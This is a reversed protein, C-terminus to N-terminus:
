QIDRVCRVKTDAVGLMRSHIDGVVVSNSVGDYSFWYKLSNPPLPPSPPNNYWSPKNRSHGGTLRHDDKDFDPSVGWIRNYGLIGSIIHDTILPETSSEQFNLLHGYDVYGWRYWGWCFSYKSGCGRAKHWRIGVAVTRKDLSGYDYWYDGLPDSFFPEASDQPQVTEFEPKTPLRWDIFGSLSLNACDNKTDTLNSYARPTGACDPDYMHQGLNCKTWMLSSADDVLMGAYPDQCIRNVLNLHVQDTSDVTINYVYCNLVVQDNGSASQIVEVRYLGEPKPPTVGPVTPIPPDFEASPLSMTDRTVTNPGTLTNSLLWDLQFKGDALLQVQLIEPTADGKINIPFLGVTTAFENIVQAAYNKKPLPYGNVGVYFQDNVINNAFYKKSQSVPDILCYGGLTVRANLHINLMPSDDLPMTDGNDLVMEFQTASGPPAIRVTGTIKPKCKQSSSKRWNKTWIWESGGAPNDYDIKLGSLDIGFVLMGNIESITNIRFMSKQVNAYSMPNSLILSYGYLTPRELMDANVDNFLTTAADHVNQLSFQPIIKVANVRLENGGMNVSVRYYIDLSGTEVNLPIGFSALHSQASLRMRFLYNGLYKIEPVSAPEITLVTNTDANVEYNYCFYGRKSLELFVQNMATLSFGMGLDSDSPLPFNQIPSDPITGLDVNCNGAAIQPAPIYANIDASYEIGLSDLKVNAEVRTDALSTNIAKEIEKSLSDEEGDGIAEAIQESIKIEKNIEKKILAHIQEKFIYFIPSLIGLMDVNFHTHDVSVNFNGAQQDVYEISMVGTKADRKVKYNLTLDFDRINIDASDQAWIVTTECIIRAALALTYCVPQFLPFWKACDDNISEHMLICLGASGLIGKVVKLDVHGATFDTLRARVSLIDPTDPSGAVTFKFKRSDIEYLKLDGSATFGIGKMDISGKQAPIIVPNVAHAKEVIYNLASYQIKAAVANPYSLTFGSEGSVTIITFHNTHVTVTNAGEDIDVSPIYVWQERDKHYYRARINEATFGKAALLNPDYKLTLSIAKKFVMDPKMEYAGLLVSNEGSLPKPLNAEVIPNAEIRVPKDFANEDANVILNGNDLNLNVPKDPENYEDGSIRNIAFVPDFYFQGNRDLISKNLNPRLAFDMVKSQVIPLEQVIIRSKSDGSQFLLPISVLDGYATAGSNMQQVTELTVGTPPKFLIKGTDGFNIRIADYLAPELAYIGIIRNLDLVGLDVETEQTTIKIWGNQPHRAEVSKINVLVQVDGRPGYKEKFAQIKNYIEQIDEILEDHDDDGSEERYENAFQKIEIHLERIDHWTRFTDADHHNSVTSIKNVHDVKDEEKGSKLSRELEHMPKNMADYICSLKVAGEVTSCAAEADCLVQIYENETPNCAANGDETFLPGQLRVSLVGNDPYEELLMQETISEITTEDEGGCNYAILISFVLILCTRLKM